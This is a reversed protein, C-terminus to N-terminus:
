CCNNCDDFSHRPISSILAHQQIYERSTDKSGNANSRIGVMNSFVQVVTEDRIPWNIIHARIYRLVNSNLGIGLCGVIITLLSYIVKNHFETEPLLRFCTLNTNNYTM